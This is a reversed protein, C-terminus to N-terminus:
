VTFQGDRYILKTKGNPLDATIQRRVTSVIDTHVSSENYGLGRWDRRSLTAPDSAYADKYANGLAIHFNGEPGGRNEDYLTDAMFRTIRSFRGDTLSFEGVRRAGPDSAIMKLLLDQNRAASAEVVEGKEFRLRVDKILSGYRYLPESFYVSGDTGRWDPSTFIEFSPINRGRGGLWKRGAGLTVWLDVDDAEIHLREIELRDLRRKVRDQERIAERWREIPEPDDLYCAHIIQEWYDELSMGAEKAMATTGYLALTWTYLGAAEKEDLWRRYPQSARRALMLKEPDVGELERLDTTSVISVHHDITAVLGRLYRRHFTSLQEHSALEIGERTVGSPVYNALCTGGSRLVANRLAVYMPKAEEGVTIRVVDGTRIGFGSGLAFNVLVDAYRDLIEESPGYTVAVRYAFGPWREFLSSPTRAEM